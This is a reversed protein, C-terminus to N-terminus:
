ADEPSIRIPILKNTAMCAAFVVIMAVDALIVGFAALITASEDAVRASDIVFIRM